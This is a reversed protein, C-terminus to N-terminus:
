FLAFDLTLSQTVPLLKKYHIIRYIYVFILNYVTFYYITKGTVSTITCLVM